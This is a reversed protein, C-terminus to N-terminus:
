YDWKYKLGVSGSSSPSVETELVVSPALDIDIVAKADMPTLGKDISVYVGEAVNKGLNVSGGELGGEEDASFSLADLGFIGRVKGLVDLSNGGKLTALSSALQLAQGITLEGNSKGFIFFSLIEKESMAPDASLKIDFKEPTGSIQVMISMLDKRYLGHVTFFPNLLSSSIFKVEGDKLVLTKGILDFTGRKLVIGGKADPHELTGGMKFDAIWESTLGRGRVYLPHRSKIHLNYSVSLDNKIDSKPAKNNQSSAELPNDIEITPIAEEMQDPIKVETKLLDVTGSLVAKKLDGKLEISANLISQIEDNHLASFNKALLTLFFRPDTFPHSIKGHISLTGTGRDKASLNKILVSERDGELLVDFDQLTTGYLLNEWYGKEIRVSGAYIPHKQTGHVHINLLAVGRIVDEGLFQSVLPSSLDINGTVAAQLPADRPFECGFPYLSITLPIHGEARLTGSKKHKLVSSFQLTHNKFDFRTTLSNVAIKLPHDAKMNELNLAGKLEPAGPTGKIGLKLLASGKLAQGMMSSLPSIDRIKLDINGSLDKESSPITLHGRLTVGKTEGQFSKITLGRGAAYEAKSEFQLPTGDLESKVSLHLNQSETSQYDFQGNIFKIGHGGMHLPRVKLSGKLSLAGGAKEGELSLNFQQSTLSTNRAKLNGKQQLITSSFLVPSKFLQDIPSKSLAQKKFNGELTTAGLQEQGDYSGKAVFSLVGSLLPDSSLDKLDIGADQSRIEYLFNRYDNEIKIDARILPTPTNLSVYVHPTEITHDVSVDVYADDTIKLNLRQGLEQFLPSKLRLMGKLTRGEMLANGHACLVMSMGALDQDIKLNTARFEEISYSIWPLSSQSSESSGTPLTHITLDDLFLHTITLKNDMLSLLSWALDLRACEALKKNNEYVTITELILRFPFVGKIERVDLAYPALAKNLTSKVFKEGPSTNFFIFVSILILLLIACGKLAIRAVSYLLKFPNFTM